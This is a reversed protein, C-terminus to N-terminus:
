DLLNRILQYLADIDEVVGLHHYVVSGDPKFVITYPTLPEGLVKHAVYDPDSVVPFLYQGTGLLQRVEAETGGAALGLMAVRGKTKGKNLRNFLTKFGPAQKVCQPCYVGIVELLVLDAKLDALAFTTLGAVGLLEQGAPDLPVPLSLEPMTDGTAPPEALAFGATFLFFLCLAIRSLVSM